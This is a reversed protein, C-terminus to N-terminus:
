SAPGFLCDDETGALGTLFTRAHNPGWCEVQVRGDITADARGGGNASWQLRVEIAEFRGDDDRDAEFSAHATGGQGPESAFTVGGEEPVTSGGLDAFTTLTTGQETTAYRLGARGVPDADVPSDSGADFEGLIASPDSIAGFRVEDVDIWLSGSLAVRSSSTIEGELEPDWADDNFRVRDPDVTQREIAWGYRDGRDEVRVREAEDDILWPGWVVAQDNDSSEYNPPLMTVAKLILVLEIHRRNAARAEDLLWGAWEASEEARGRAVLEEEHLILREDPLVDAFVPPPVECAVLAVLAPIYM